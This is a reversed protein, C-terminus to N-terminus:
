IEHRALPPCTQSLYYKGDDSDSGELEGVIYYDDRNKRRWMRNIVRKVRGAARNMVAEYGKGNVGKETVRITLPYVSLLPFLRESNKPIEFSATEAKRFPRQINYFLQTKRMNFKREKNPDLRNPICFVRKYRAIDGNELESHEHAFDHLDFDSKARLYKIFRERFPEIGDKADVQGPGLPVRQRLKSDFEEMWSIETFEASEVGLVKLVFLRRSDIAYWQGNRQGVRIKPIKDVSIQETWLEFM